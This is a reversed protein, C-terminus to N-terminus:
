DNGFPLDDPNIKEFSAQEALEQYTPSEKIIRQIWEPLAEVKEVDDPTDLDFGFITTEAEALPPFAKPYKGIADIDAYINGSNKSQRHIITLMCPVNLLKAIDFNRAEDETLAVGRWANIAKRLNGKEHMSLTFRKSMLRPKDTVTGDDEKFQMRETPLEFILMITRSTKDTNPKPQEGLDIYQVCRAPYSDPELPKMSSRPQVTAIHM